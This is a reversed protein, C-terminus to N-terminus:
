LNRFYNKKEVQKKNYTKKQNPLYSSYPNKVRVVVKSNTKNSNKNVIGLIKNNNNNKKKSIIINGEKFGNYSSIGSNM